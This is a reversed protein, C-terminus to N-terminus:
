RRDQLFAIMQAPTDFNDVGIECLEIAVGARAEISQLFAAFHFSDLLGSSLVPTDRTLMAGRTLPQMLDILEDLTM